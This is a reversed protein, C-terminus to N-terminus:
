GCVSIVSEETLAIWPETSISNEASTLREIEVVGVSLTFYWTKQIYFNLKGLFKIFTLDFPQLPKLLHVIAIVIIECKNKDDELYSKSRREKSRM